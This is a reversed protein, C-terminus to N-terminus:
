ATIRSVEYGPGPKSVDKQAGRVGYFNVGSATLSRTTILESDTTSVPANTSELVLYPDIFGSYIVKGKMDWNRADAPIDLDKGVAQILGDRIVITAGDVAEGPKIVVKGGVLAHVGLPLPRFGPPLLDAAPLDYASFLLYFFCVLVWSLRHFLPLTKCM